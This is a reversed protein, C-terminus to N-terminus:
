GGVHAGKRINCSLHALQTNEYTHEGGHKLPLVHDLSASASSRPKAARDVALGCLQCTWRDRKFVALRFVREAHKGNQMARRRQRDATRHYRTAHEDCCFRVKGLRSFMMGCEACQATHPTAQPRRWTSRRVSKSGARCKDGCYKAWGRAALFETGCTQCTAAVTKKHKPWVTQPKRQKPQKPPKPARPHPVYNALHWARHYEAHCERCWSDLGDTARALRRFAEAEKVSECRVCRKHM